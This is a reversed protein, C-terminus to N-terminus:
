RMGVHRMLEQVGYRVLRLSQQDVVTTSLQTQRSINSDFLTILMGVAIKCKSHKPMHHM